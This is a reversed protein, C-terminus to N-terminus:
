PLSRPNSDRRKRLVTSKNSPAEGAGNEKEEALRALYDLEFFPAFEPRPKVAIIAHDRIVVQEFLTRALRSRQEQNAAAWAAPLDSLFAAVQGLVMSQDETADLSQLAATLEDRERQYENREIDGWRYLETLRELRAEIHRRRQAEDVRDAHANAHLALIQERYDDPISFTALYEALQVEYIELYASRQRCSRGQNRHYCYMRPRKGPQSGGTIQMTGGCHDCRGLGSLSYVTAVRRVKLGNDRRSAARVKRVADFLDPDLVAQDQGPIWGGKGDPLQGLYFCNQLLGRVSGKSFPNRGRNGTTRYGHDNLVVAVERDSKGTAATQFALLLGPYTEPDPVPLGDPGKKLGFPIVGNYLGQRKREAKGKKTEQSLNDSYYQAFAALTALIVKGIPTTFDMDESLSVFGVGHRDLRELTELTIRLNRSFRDLKHVVVAEFTGTEADAVMAAFAPRKALDDTRASKGEDRYTEVIEWGKAECYLRASHEQADLSYGEVQEESSVRVYLAVRKTQNTM